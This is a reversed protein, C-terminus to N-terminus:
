IILIMCFVLLINWQVYKYCYLLLLFICDMVVVLWQSMKQLLVSSLRFTWTDYLTRQVPLYPVASTSWRLLVTLLTISPVSPITHVSFSPLSFPFCLSSLFTCCCSVSSCSSSPLTRTPLTSQPRSHSPGGQYLLSTSRLARHQRICTFPRDVVRPCLVLQGIPLPRGSSDASGIFVCFLILYYM